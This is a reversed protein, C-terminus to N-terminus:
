SFSSQLPGSKVRMALLTLFLAKARPNSECWASRDIASLACIRSVDVRMRTMDEDGTVGAEDAGLEGGVKQDGLDSEIKLPGVNGFRVRANSSIL